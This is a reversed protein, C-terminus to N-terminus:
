GLWALLSAEIVGRSDTDSRVILQRLARHWPGHWERLCLDFAQEALRLTKWAGSYELWTDYEGEGAGCVAQSETVVRKCIDEFAKYSEIELRRTDM